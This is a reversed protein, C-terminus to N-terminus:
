NTATQHLLKATLVAQRLGAQPAQYNTPQQIQESTRAVPMTDTEVYVQPETSDNDYEPFLKRAAQRFQVALHIGANAVRVFSIAKDPTFAGRYDSVYDSAIEEGNETEYGTVSIFYGAIWLKPVIVKEGYRKETPFRGDQKKLGIVNSNTVETPKDMTRNGVVLKVGANEAISDAM